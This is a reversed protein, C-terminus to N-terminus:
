EPNSKEVGQNYTYERSKLEDNLYQQHKEFQQAYQKESLHKNDHKNDDSFLEDVLTYYREEAFYSIKKMIAEHTVISSGNKDNVSQIYEWPESTGCIAIHFQEATKGNNDEILMYKYREDLHSVHREYESNSEMFDLVGYFLRKYEPDDMKELIEESISYSRVGPNGFNHTDSIGGYEYESREKNSEVFFSADPYRECIEKFYDIKGKKTNVSTEFSSEETKTSKTSISEYYSSGRVSSVEM